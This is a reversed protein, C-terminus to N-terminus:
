KMEKIIDKLERLYYQASALGYDRHVDSQEKLYFQEVELLYIYAKYEKQGERLEFDKISRETNAIIDYTLKGHDDIKRVVGMGEQPKKVKQFLSAVVADMLKVDKPSKDLVSDGTKPLGIKAERRSRLYEMGRDSPKDSNPEAIPLLRYTYCDIDVRVSSLTGVQTSATVGAVGAAAYGVAAISNIVLTITEHQWLLKARYIELRRNLEACQKEIINPNYAEIFGYPLGQAWSPKEQRGDPDVLNIPNNDCYTYWGRHIIYM